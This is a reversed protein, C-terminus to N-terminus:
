DIKPVLAMFRERENPNDILEACITVLDIRTAARARARQVLRPAIPGMVEMLARTVGEAFATTVADSDAPPPVSAVPEAGSGRSGEAAIVQLADSILSAQEEGQPILEGLLRAFEEASRAERLARRVQFGALPGIHHALKRELASLSSSDTPQLMSGSKTGSRTGRISEPAVPLMVTTLDEAADPAGDQASVAGILPRLAAAMRSATEFRDEPQKALARDVIGCLDDDIGLGTDRLSTHTEHILRYLTEAYNDGAFARQGSLLEYMVCGLSFLDCRRDVAVGRCQEPSMYSPTGVMVM